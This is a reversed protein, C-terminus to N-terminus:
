RFPYFVFIDKSVIQDATFPGYATSDLSFPRNDGLLFYENSKLQVPEFDSTFYVGPKDGIVEKIYDKNLFPEEIYNGNIYLKDEKYFITENPLGVVRKVLFKNERPVYVVVIDFRQIGSISKGIVSSFGHDNNHLTPYMSDGEVHVHKFLFTTFLHVLLFCIVFMKLISILEDLITNKKSEEPKM